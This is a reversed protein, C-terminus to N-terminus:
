VTVELVKDSKKSFNFPVTVTKDGAHVTVNYNGYFGRFYAHANKVPVTVSTHWDERILKKLMKWAPKESMDFRLLGGYYVNEGATM